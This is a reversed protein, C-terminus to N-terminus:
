KACDILHQKESETLSDFKEQTIGRAEIANRVDETLSSFKTGIPSVPTVKRANGFWNKVKGRALGTNKDVVPENSEPVTVEAPKKGEPMLTEIMSKESDSLRDYQVNVNTFPIAGVQGLNPNAGTFEEGNLLLQTGEGVTYQNKASPAPYDVKIPIVNLSAVKIGYKDELFKQYLSLQRSWKKAKDESITNSHHTKMDFVHFNGQSDYALLDLTGAVAISHQTGDNATVNVTGTVTVDRPIVTLGKADLTNKLNSLRAAFAKWQAQTANPYDFFYDNSIEGKDNYFEGAFFDRVFEDISTGINTSPTIWPSSSDFAEGAEEDAQIIHTVRAYQKDNEDIYTQGDSSLRLSKSDNVIRDVVAKTVKDVQSEVKTPTGELVAGTESDVIANGSRVQDTAVIAPENMPKPATANDPNAVVPSNIMSGDKKFPSNIDVGRITYNFSEKSAELINDDFIDNINSLRNKKANESEGEKDEFDSYNVQYKVLPQTGVKRFNDDEDLMLNVIAEVLYEADIEGNHVTTLPIVEDGNVLNLSYVRQEKIMDETPALSYEYGSPLYLYNKLQKGLNSTIEALKAESEAGSPVLTGNESKLRIDQIPNKKFFAQLTKGYRSLRSNAGLVDKADGARLVELLPVGTRSRSNEPTTVFLQFETDNDDKLNPMMYALHINNGEGRKRIKSLMRNKYKRYVSQRDPLPAAPDNMVAREGADMDNNMIQILSNNPESADLHRPPNARVYGNTTIVSGDVKLLSGDQQKMAAERIPQTRAAGPTNASTRPLFGIPQYRKGDITIPGNEDEVVATIPLHDADEYIEGIEQKVSNILAPDAIFMIPKKRDVKGSRLYEDIKYDKYAKGVTSNEHRWVEATGIMSNNRKTDDAQKETTVPTAPTETVAPKYSKVKAAVMKLLSSTKEADDGGEQIQVEMQNAATMIAQSLTEKDAYESDALDGLINRVSMKIHDEFVTSNKIAAFGETVANGIEDGSNTRFRDIIPAGEAGGRAIDPNEEVIGFVGPKRGQGEKEVEAISKASEELTQSSFAALPNTPKSDEATTLKDEVPKTVAEVEAKNSNYSDIVDKYLSIAEEINDLTGRMGEPLKSNIEDLYTLLNSNGDEDMEMLASMAEQSNDPRIGKDTLYQMTSLITSQQNQNLSTFKSNHELQDFMGELVKNDEIYRNYNANDKLLDRVVAREATSAGDYAKDLEKVFTSYDEIGGLYNYKARANDRAVQQKVRQTFANFNDPDTLISNYQTLYARQAINIRGADQVKNSFDEYISTGQILVNDIIEQQEQSYNSKNDPNLIIARDEPSLQMIDRENLVAKLVDSIEETGSLQESLKKREKELAKIKAKKSNLAVKETDGLINKRKNINEVDKKLREIQETLEGTQKSANSISGYKVFISSLNAPINSQVSPTIQVKSLEDELSTARERWSDISMKGYILAQKTDDDAANGLMKDIRSSEEKITSMTNLLKNANKQIVEFVEEDSQELDRNNPAARFQEILAGVEPSDPEMTAVRSLDAMFSNYYSTGQIHSLMMADNITKGLASNRYEFEDNKEAAEDMQKAWNLTGVLGNYRERNEPDQMWNNIVSAMSSMEEGERKQERIAEFIPNRYTIPSRRLGYALKSEDQMRIAPGRRTNITPTGMSSSLAGYIGSLITQKDIMSEGAARSAAMFDDALSESLATEGEGLYKNHLYTALNYEAGGQTFASIISQSYEEGFEGIPEQAVNAVRKWKGYAPVVSGSSNIRFENSTLVRGLRTRRLAEQVQPTQLGAKLTTNFIGNVGSNLATTYINVKVGNEESKKIADEYQPAYSEFIDNYLRAIDEQNTPDYGLRSLEEPNSLLQRFKSDVAEAQAQSIQEKANDLFDIKAQLGEMAGEVWGVAGPIVFANTYQQAKQITQLTNNLTNLNSVAKGRNFAIAAGKIGSFVKDSVATMGAGSLMSSMTFGGQAMLEPITNVSFINDLIDGNEEEPTRISATSSIGTEKSLEYDDVAGQLIEKFWGSVGEDDLSAGIAGLLSGTQVVSNGFRSFDNDSMRDLYDEFSDPAEIENNRPAIGLAGFALGVGQFFQGTIFAGAGSFGTYLKDMFPQNESVIRQIGQQMRINASQEGYTDKDAQYRAMMQLKTDEDLPLYETGKFKKFYPSITNATKDFEELAKNASGAWKSTRELASNYISENDQRKKVEEPANLSDIAEVMELDPKKIHSSEPEMTTEPPKIAYLSDVYKAREETSLKKFDNYGEDGFKERYKYNYYANDVEDPTLGKINDAYQKEWSARDQATLGKLKDM